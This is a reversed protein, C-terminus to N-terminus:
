EGELREAVKRQIRVQREVEANERAAALQVNTANKMGAYMGIGLAMIMVFGLAMIGILILFILM